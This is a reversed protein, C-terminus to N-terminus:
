HFLPLLDFVSSEQLAQGEVVLRSYAACAAGSSASEQRVRDLLCGAELILIPCNRNAASESQVACLLFLGLDGSSPRCTAVLPSSSGHAVLLQVWTPAVAQGALALASHHSPMGLHCAPQAFQHPPPAKLPREKFLPDGAPVTGPRAPRLLCFARDQVDLVVVGVAAAPQVYGDTVGRCTGGMNAMWAGCDESVDQCEFKLAVSPALLLALLPLMLPVM